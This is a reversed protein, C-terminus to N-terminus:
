DETYDEDTEPGGKGDTNSNTNTKGTSHKCWPMLRGTEGDCVLMIQRDPDYVLATLDVDEVVAPERAAVALGFPLSVTVATM